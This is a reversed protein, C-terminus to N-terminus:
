MFELEKALLRASPFREEDCLVWEGCSLKRHYSKGDFIAFYELQPARNSVQTIFPLYMGTPEYEEMPDSRGVLYNFDTGFVRLTVLTALLNEIWESWETFDM